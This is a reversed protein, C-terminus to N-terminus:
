WRKKNKKNTTRIQNIITYCFLLASIGFCIIIVSNPIIFWGNANIVLGVLGLIILFWM